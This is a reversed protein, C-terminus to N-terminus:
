TEKGLTEMPELVTDNRCCIMNSGPTHLTRLDWAEAWGAVTIGKVSDVTALRSKPMHVYIAVIKKRGDKVFGTPVYLTRGAVQTTQLRLILPEANKAGFVNDLLWRGASRLIGTMPNGHKMEPNHEGYELAARMDRPRVRVLDNGTIM